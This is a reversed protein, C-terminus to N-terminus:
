YSSSKTVLNKCIQFRKTLTHARTHTNTHIKPSTIVASWIVDMMNDAVPRNYDVSLYSGGVFTAAVCM